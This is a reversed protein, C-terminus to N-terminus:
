DRELERSATMAKQDRQGTMGDLREIDARVGERM